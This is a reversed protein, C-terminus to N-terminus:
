PRAAMKVTVSVTKTGRALDVKVSDGIKTARIGRLLDEQTNVPKGGFGVIVDGRQIGADEAPSGEVVDGIVVGHDVGLRLQNQLQSDVTDFNAIGLFPQTSSIIGGGANRLTEIEPKATNIAIAFGVNQAPESGNGELVATNIGVVQGAGNVLPGGSNGPNIAADTQILGDHSQLTRGLASVIGRTVSPGGPLALANGIAIVDDGVQLADSDGLEVTPLGSAGHIKLLALDGRNAPDIGLIDADRYTSEGFLQVKVTRADQVVHGNTLVEGESTLVMGTGASNGNISAARIAVVGPEVKNLVAQVNSSGTIPPATTGSRAPTTVATVREVTKVKTGRTAVAVAGGALGGILAAVLAIAVMPGVGSPRRHAPSPPAMFPETSPEWQPGTSPPPAEEATPVPDWSYPMQATPAEAESPVGGPPSVWVRESDSGKSEDM